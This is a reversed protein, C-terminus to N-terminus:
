SRPPIVPVLVYNERGGGFHISVNGDFREAPRDTPDDHKFPGVGTMTFWGVRQAEESFQYDKGQITLAITWGAPVVISTPWIEIDLEYVGGPTLPQVEDHTHYPRFPLSLAPDLKRHSARLWGHAVPTHPDLAGQFTIEEGDPRFVRFILFLDADATTSSIHLKAALPGTLETEEGVTMRFTVGEAITEYEVTTTDSPAETSLTRDAGNLHLKTWQTDPIPWDPEYRLVFKEDPHRINLIARPVSDWGNDRGHLFHDFFQLQLERGYDTYYHTWHELGHLELWKEKSAVRYFGDTNGRLHLGHGGWNGASLLPVTIKEWVPIRKDYYANAVLPQERLEEGFDARNRAMEEPPLTIDGCVNDGTARSKPGNDGLGYQVTVVQHEYWNAWFTSLLGGHHTADRYWDAAGEWVCMAALHPPELSAVQWQNMGYYSIGSLGVKGTSWDQVGAWEICDYFDETEQPSFHQIYGPSRGAGRSDVRVCAYGFRCWKEPDVVEWNAHINSSNAPVDPHKECMIRWQDPYGDEFHLGKAYPGYSLIVPYRGEELPLFVDAMLVLGDRMDVPVDWYVRLGERVEMHPAM